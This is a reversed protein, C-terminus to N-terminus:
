GNPVGRDGSREELRALRRQLGSRLVALRALYLGVGAWIVTYAMFLYKLDKM